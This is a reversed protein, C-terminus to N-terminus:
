LERLLDLKDNMKNLKNLAYPPPKFHTAKLATKAYYLRSTIERWDETIEDFEESEKPLQKRIDEGYFINELYLWQRQVMLAMELTESIYSLTREWYDVEKAFPEVFRTSKMTSLQMM